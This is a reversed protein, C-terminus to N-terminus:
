VPTFNGKLFLGHHVTSDIPRRCHHILRIKSIEKKIISYCANTIIASIVKVRKLVRSQSVVAFMCCSVGEWLELRTSIKESNLMSHKYGGWRYATALYMSIWLMGLRSLCLKYFKVLRHAKKQCKPPGQKWGWFMNVETRWEDSLTFSLERWMYRVHMKYGVSKIKFGWLVSVSLM